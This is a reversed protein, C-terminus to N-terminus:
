EAEAKGADIDISIRHRFPVMPDAKLHGALVIRLEDFRRQAGEEIRVELTAPDLRPEFQLICDEIQQRMWSVKLRAQSRGAHPPLGFALVSRSADPPLPVRLDERPGGTWRRAQSNMLWGINRQVDAAVDSWNSAFGRDDAHDPPPKWRELLCPLFMSDNM